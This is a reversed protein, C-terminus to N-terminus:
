EKNHNKRSVLKIQNEKYVREGETPFLVKYTRTGGKTKNYTAVTTVPTPEIETIFGLEKDMGQQIEFYSLESKRVQVLEGLAYIPAHDYIKRLRPSLKSTLLRECDKWLPAKGAKAYNRVIRGSNRRNEIHHFYATQQSASFFTALFYIWERYEQSAEWSLCHAREVAQSKEIKEDSNREVLILAFTEQRPTFQGFKKLSSALDRLTSADRTNGLKEANIVANRLQDITITM